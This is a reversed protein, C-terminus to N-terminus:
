VLQTLPRQRETQKSCCQIRGDIIDILVCSTLSQNSVSEISYTSGEVSETSEPKLVSISDLEENEVELDELTFEKNEDANAMIHAKEFSSKDLIFPCIEVDCDSITSETGLNDSILSESVLSDNDLLYDDENSNVCEYNG